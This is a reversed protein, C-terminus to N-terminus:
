TTGSASGRNSGQAYHRRGHPIEKPTLKACGPMVLLYRVIVEFFQLYRRQPIIAAINPLCNFGNFATPHNANRSTRPSVEQLEITGM